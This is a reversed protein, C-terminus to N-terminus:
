YFLIRLRTDEPLIGSYNGYMQCLCSCHQHGIFGQKHDNVFYSHPMYIFKETYVWNNTDEEPDIDGEFDGDNGHYYAQSGQVRVRWQECLVMEPPCVVPDTIIWDCWGGGLIGAFGM